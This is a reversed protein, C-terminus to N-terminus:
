RAAQAAVAARLAAQLLRAAWPGPHLPGQGRRKGPASQPAGLSRGRCRRDAGQAESSRAGSFRKEQGWSCHHISTSGCRGIRVASAAQSQASTSPPGPFGGAALSRRSSGSSASAYGPCASCCSVWTSSVDMALHARRTFIFEEPSNGRLACTRSSPLYGGTAQRDQHARRSGIKIYLSM